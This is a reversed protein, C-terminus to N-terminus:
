TDYVGLPVFDLSCAVDYDGKNTNLLQLAATSDFIIDNLWLVRSVRSKYRAGPEVELADYVKNRVQALFKIRDFRGELGIHNHNDEMQIHHPINRRSLEADFMTLMAKTSDKSNSEYISIFINDDGMTEALEFLSSTFRPLISDSNYLNAAM